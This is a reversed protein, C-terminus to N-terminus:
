GVVQAIVSLSQVTHKVPIAIHFHGAEQLTGHAIDQCLLQVLGLAFLLVHGAGEEDHLPLSGALRTAFASGDSYNAKYM